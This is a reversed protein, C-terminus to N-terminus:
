TKLHMNILGARGTSRKHFFGMRGLFCRIVKFIPFIVLLM